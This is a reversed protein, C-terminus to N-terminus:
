LNEFLFSKFNLKKALANLQESDPKKKLLNKELNKWDAPPYDFLSVLKKNLEIRDGYRMLTERLKKQPIYKAKRLIEEATSYKNLLKVATKPGVGPVGEINDANDGMLALYDEIQNPAIGFKKITADYDLCKFEGAKGSNLLSVNEDVLQALDKDNTVILIEFVDKCLKTIAGLLDDAERGEEMVVPWGSLEAWQIIYPVQRRLDDPMPSRNAKYKKDLKLREVSKGKDFVVAGYSHPYDAELKKLMRAIGYTANTPLGDQNSLPHTGHYYRYIQAYADILVIRNEASM